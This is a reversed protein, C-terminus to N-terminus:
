GEEGYLIVGVIYLALTVIGVGYAVWTWIRAKREAEEAKFFDGQAIAGNARIAYLFALLGFPLGCWLLALTAYLLRKSIREQILFKLVSRYEQAPETGGLEFAEVERAPVWEEQGKAWVLTDSRLMGTEFLRKMKAESVPGVPEGNGSYFWLKKSEQEDM